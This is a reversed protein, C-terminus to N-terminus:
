LFPIVNGGPYKNTKRNYRHKEFIAAYLGFEFIFNIQMKDLESLQETDPPLIEDAPITICCLEYHTFSPLNYPCQTKYYQSAYLQGICYERGEIMYVKQLNRGCYDGLPCMKYCQKSQWSIGNWLPIGFKKVSYDFLPFCIKMYFDGIYNKIIIDPATDTQEIDSITNLKALYENLIKAFIHEPIKGDYSNQIATKMQEILNM